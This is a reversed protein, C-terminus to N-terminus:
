DNRAHPNSCQSPSGQRCPLAGHKCTWCNHNQFIGERSYDPDRPDLDAARERSTEVRVGDIVVPVRDSLTPM